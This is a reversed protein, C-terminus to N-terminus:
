FIRRLLDLLDSQNGERAEVFYFEFFLPVNFILSFILVPGVFYMVKIWRRSNSIFVTVPKSVALYREVALIVTLYISSVLSVNQLYRLYPFLRFYWYFNTKHQMRISELIDLFIFISDVIALIALTRNFVNALKKSLLIPLAAFNACIGLCGIAILVYGEIVM